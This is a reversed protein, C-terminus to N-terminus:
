MEHGVGEFLVSTDRSVVNDLEILIAAARSFRPEALDATAGRDPDDNGFGEFRQLAEECSGAVAMINYPNVGGGRPTDHGLQLAHGLEHILTGTLADELLIPGGDATGCAPHLADLTDYYLIVGTKEVDSEHAVVEGGRGNLDTREAAVLVHAMHEIPVGVFNAPHDELASWRQEFSGDFVTAGVDQEDRFFHVDVAVDAYAAAAREFVADDIRRDLMADVEVLLSARFPHPPLAAPLPHLTSLAYEERNTLGDQDPDEDADPTGDGDTDLQTPDLQTPDGAWREWDDDLGDGDGDLDPVIIVDDRAPEAGSCALLTAAAVFVLSIRLPPTPSAFFARM